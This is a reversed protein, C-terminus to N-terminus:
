PEPQSRPTIPHLGTDPEASLPSDALDSESQGEGGRM